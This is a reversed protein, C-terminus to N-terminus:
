AEVYIIINAHEIAGAQKVAVSIVPCKRAERDAQSQEAIPTFYVYYGLTRINRMFDEYVGFTDPSNWEGAAIMGNIVGQNLVGLVANVLINVGQTTQPIKYRTTFLVNAAALQIATRLWIQNTLEDFYLGGQKFSIVKALGEISCYVDAGIVECQNLITENINTDVPVNVLDKYTMTLTSNSGAYNVSLGRSAFASAFLKANAKRETMDNGTLYLLKRTNKNDKLQYFLGGSQLTESDTDTIFLVSNQMGEVYNSAGVAEIQGLDKTTLIGEAYIQASIREIAQATTEVDVIEDEGDVVVANAGDLLTAAYLDTGTGGTTAKLEISSTSGTTKTAFVISNGEATVTAYEGSSDIYNNIYQAIGEVDLNNINMGTLTHDEGDVTITLDGDTVAQLNSLNSSLDITTAIGPTAEQTVVSAKYPAVIVYGDANLINPTQAFITNVMKATTTETGFVSTVGAATRSIIYDSDLPTVPEDETLLLITGLQLPELGRTAPVTTANVVYSLPITYNAM